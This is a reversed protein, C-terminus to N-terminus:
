RHFRRPNMNGGSIWRPDMTSGDIFGRSDMLPDMTSLPPDMPHSTSRWGRWLGLFPIYLFFFPFPFFFPFFSYLFFSSFTFLLSILLDKYLMIILFNNDSLASTYTTSLYVCTRYCWQHALKLNLTWPAIAKRLCFHGVYNVTNHMLCSCLAVVM